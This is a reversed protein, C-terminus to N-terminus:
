ARCSPYAEVVPIDFLHEEEDLARQLFHYVFIHSKVLMAVPLLRSLSVLHKLVDLTVDTISKLAIVV